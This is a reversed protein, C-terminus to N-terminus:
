RSNKHIKYRRTINRCENEIGQITVLITGFTYKSLNPKKLVCQDTKEVLLKTAVNSIYFRILIYIHTSILM